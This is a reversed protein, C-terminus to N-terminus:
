EEENLALTMWIVEKILIQQNLGKVAENKEDIEMYIAEVKAERRAYADKISNKREELEILANGNMIRTM